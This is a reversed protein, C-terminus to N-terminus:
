KAKVDTASPLWRFREAKPVFEFEPSLSGVPQADLDASPDRLQDLAEDGPMLPRMLSSNAESQPNLKLFKGSLNLYEFFQTAESNLALSLSLTTGEVWNITISKVPALTELFTQLEIYDKFTKVDSVEILLQSESQVLGPQIAFRDAMVRAMYSVITESVTELDVDSISAAYSAGSVSMQWNANWTNALSRYVRIMLQGDAVYRAKAQDIADPFLGWLNSINVAARDIQDAAPFIIPLAFRNAQSELSELLSHPNTQGLLQRQGDAEIAIWLLISPRVNGWIPVGFNIMNKELAKASFNVELLFPLPTKKTVVSPETEDSQELAPNQNEKNFATQKLHATYDPNEKYAYSVVYQEAPFFRSTFEHQETLSRNGSVKLLVRLLADNFATDRDSSQQSSVELVTSYLGEVVAASSVNSFVLFFVFIISRNIVSFLSLAM